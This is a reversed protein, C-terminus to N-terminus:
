AQEGMYGSIVHLVAEKAREWPMELTCGAARAHGGGGFAACVKAADFAESTRLSVKYAGDRRERLTVGVEVGEIQRPIPTLGELDGDTAGTELITEQPITMVACRGGFFFEITDLVSRELELRARTKVEFMDRNIAYNHAGLAIMESAIAHTRATVNSYKFCGTDTSIGTYVADAILVDPEMPLLSLLDYIIECTAAAEVRVIRCDAKMSNSQHHDICLQLKDAFGSLKDGLLSPAAIDVSVVFEPDFPEEPPCGNTIYGYKEPIKDSCRVCAKKGMLRLARCLAYGSGITDGDPFQHILIWFRDHACLLQAAERLATEMSM